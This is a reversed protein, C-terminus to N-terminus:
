ALYTYLIYNLVSTIETNTGSAKCVQPKVCRYLIDNRYDLLHIILFLYDCDVSQPQTRNITNCKIIIIVM